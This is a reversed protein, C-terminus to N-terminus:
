FLPVQFAAPTKVSHLCTLLIGSICPWIGMMALCNQPNGVGPQKNVSSYIYSKLWQQDLKRDRTLLFMGVSIFSQTGSVLDKITMMGNLTVAIRLATLFPLEAM